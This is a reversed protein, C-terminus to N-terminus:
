FGLREKVLIIRVRGPKDREYILIKNVSSSMGHAKQMRESERILAYEYIRKFADDLNGVIKQTSIVWVVHAAGFVYSSIQSGTASAIMIQGGRTVAQVSGVVYEPGLSRKRLENREKEDKIGRIRKGLEDYEGSEQLHKTIGIEGLTTSSVHMVEAGKPIFELVKNRADEGSDVVTVEFGRKRLAGATEDVTKDDALEEWEM